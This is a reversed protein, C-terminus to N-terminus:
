CSLIRGSWVYFDPLRADGWALAAGPWCVGCDSSTPVRGTPSSSASVAARSRVFIWFSLAESTLAKPLFAELAEDSEFRERVTDYLWVYELAM